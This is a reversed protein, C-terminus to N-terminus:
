SSSSQHILIKNLCIFLTFFFCYLYVLTSAFRSSSIAVLQSRLSKLKKESDKRQYFYVSCFICFIYLLSSMASQSVSETSNVTRLIDKKANCVFCVWLGCGVSACVQPWVTKKKKKKKKTLTFRTVLYPSPGFYLLFFFRGIETSTFSQIQTQNPWM